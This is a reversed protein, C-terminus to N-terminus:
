AIPAETTYEDTNCNILNSSNLLAAIELGLSCLYEGNHAIKSTCMVAIM